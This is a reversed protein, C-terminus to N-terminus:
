NLPRAGRSVDILFAENHNLKVGDLSPGGKGRQSSDLGRQGGTANKRPSLDKAQAKGKPAAKTNKKKM